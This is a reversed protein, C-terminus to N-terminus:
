YGLTIRTSQSSIVMLGLVAFACFYLSSAIMRSEVTRSYSAVKFIAMYAILPMLMIYGPFYRESIDGIAVGSLVLFLLLSHALYLMKYRRFKEVYVIVFLGFAVVLWFNYLYYAEVIHSDEKNMYINFRDILPDLGLTMSILYGTEIMLKSFFPLLAYFILLYKRPWQIVWSIIPALLFALSSWHLSIAVGLVLLYKVREGRTLFYLSMIAVPLGLSQRMANGFYVMDYTLFVFVFIYFPAPTGRVLMKYLSGILIYILSVNVVLWLRPDEIFIKIVAAVPWFGIESNGYVEKGVSQATTIGDLAEFALIYRGTDFGADFPRFGTFVLVLIYFLMMLVIVFMHKLYIEFSHYLPIKKIFGDGHVTLLLVAIPSAILVTILYIGYHADV